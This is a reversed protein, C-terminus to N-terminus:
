PLTYQRVNVGWGALTDLRVTKQYAAVAGDFLAAFVTTVEPVTPTADVMRDIPWDPGALTVNVYWFPTGTEDLAPQDATLVRYWRFVAQYPLHGVNSPPPMPFPFYDLDWNVRNPMWGALMIWQGPRVPPLDSREPAAADDNLGVDAPLRLTVAGGGAGTSGAAFDAYVIRESPAANLRSALAADPLELRRRHFVVVTVEFLRHDIIDPGPTSIGIGTIAPSGSVVPTVTVLWSYEGQDLHVRGAGDAVAQPRLEALEPVAFSLDDGWRYQRNAAEIPLPGPLSADGWRRVTVRLMRPPRLGINAGGHLNSVSLDPPDNDLTYPFARGRWNVGDPLAAPGGAAAQATSIYLPDIAISNGEALPMPYRRAPNGFKVYLQQPGPGTANPNDIDWFPGPESWVESGVTADALTVGGGVNLHNLWMGPRLLGAVKVHRWAARGVVSAQDSVRAQSVDAQGVPLLAALGLLGVALVFISFLIELLSIGRRRRRAGSARAAACVLRPLRGALHWLGNMM